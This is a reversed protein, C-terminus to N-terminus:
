KINQEIKEICNSITKKNEESQNQKEKARNFEYKILEVSANDFYNNEIASITVETAKSYKEDNILNIVYKKYIFNVDSLSEDTDDKEFQKEYAWCAVKFSGIKEAKEGITKPSFIAFAGFLCGIIFIIVAISILVTKIVLKRM